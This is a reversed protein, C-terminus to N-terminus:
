YFFHNKTFFDNVLIDLWIILLLDNSSPATYLSTWSVQLLIPTSEWENMVSNKVTNYGEPFTFGSIVQAFLYKGFQFIQSWMRPILKWYHVLLPLHSKKLVLSGFSSKNISVLFNPKEYFDINMNEPKLLFRVGFNM